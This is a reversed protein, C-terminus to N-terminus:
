RVKKTRDEPRFEIAEGELRVTGRPTAFEFVTGPKGIRTERGDPRRLIFTRLSEDVVTGELGVLTPDTSAVVKVRLGILEGRAADRAPGAIRPVSRKM